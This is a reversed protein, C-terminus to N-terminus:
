ACSGSYIAYVWVGKLRRIRLGYKTWWGEKYFLIFLVAAGVVSVLVATGSKDAKQFPFWFYLSLRGSANSYSSLWSFIQILSLVCFGCVSAAHDRVHIHDSTRIINATKVQKVRDRLKWSMLIHWASSEQWGMFSLIVLSYIRCALSIDSFLRFFELAYLIVFPFRDSDWVIEWWRYSEKQNQCNQRWVHRM